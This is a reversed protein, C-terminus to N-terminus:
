KAFNDNEQKQKQKQKKRWSKAIQVKAVAASVSKGIADRDAPRVKPQNYPGHERRIEWAWLRSNM